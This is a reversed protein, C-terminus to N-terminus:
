KSILNQILSSLKQYTNEAIEKTVFDPNEVDWWIVKKNNRLFDPVYPEEAMSVVIDAKELMEPTLKKTQKEEIDISHMKLVDFFNESVVNKLFQGEPEEIAGTYTGDSSADNSKTIKNYIAEAMQSRFMNGKCVFLVKM